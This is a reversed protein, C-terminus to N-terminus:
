LHKQMWEAGEKFTHPLTGHGHLGCSPGILLEIPSSRIRKEFARDALKQVLSFLHSTNVRTDRNGIYFRLNKQCLEEIPLHLHPTKMNLSTDIDTLPAFGLVTKIQPLKAAIHLALFGGRSLGALTVKTAYLDLIQTITEVADNIFQTIVDDGAELREAWYDIAQEKKRGEEHGPIMLSFIRVPKDKFHSVFQNFPDLHLSDHDSLALYVCAPLPGHDLPPGIFSTKVTLNKM